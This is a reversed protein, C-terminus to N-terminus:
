ANELEKLKNLYFEAKELDQVGNKRDYRTVYKLVNIRYFGKLQEKDFQLESFGIVDIGNSHYHSPHNIVDDEVQEYNLNKM